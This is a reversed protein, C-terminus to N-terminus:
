INIHCVKSNHLAIQNKHGLQGQYNCKCNGYNLEFRNRIPIKKARKCEPCLFTFSNSQEAIKAKSFKSQLAMGILSLARKNVLGSMSLQQIALWDALWGMMLVWEADWSACLRFNKYVFWDLPLQCTSCQKFAGLPRLPIYKDYM